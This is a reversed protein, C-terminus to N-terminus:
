ERREEVLIGDKYMRIVTVRNPKSVNPNILVVKVCRANEYYGGEMASVKRVPLIRVLENDKYVFYRDSEVRTEEYPKGTYYIRLPIVLTDNNCLLQYKHEILGIDGYINRLQLRVEFSDGAEYGIYKNEASHIPHVTFQMLEPTVYQDMVLRLQDIREPGKSVYFFHFTHTSGYHLSSAIEPQKWVEIEVPRFRVYGHIGFNANRQNKANSRLYGSKYFRGPRGRTDFIGTVYTTDGPLIPEKQWNGPVFGGDSTSFREIVLPENGTNVVAFRIRYISDILLTDLNRDKELIEIEAQAWSNLSGTFLLFLLLSRM